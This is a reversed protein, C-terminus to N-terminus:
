AVVAAAECGLGLTWWVVSPVVKRPMTAGEDFGEAGMGAASDLGLVSSSTPVELPTSSSSCSGAM